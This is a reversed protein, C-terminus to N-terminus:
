EERNKERGAEGEQTHTHRKLPISILGYREALKSVGDNTEEMKCFFSYSVNEPTLNVVITPVGITQSCGWGSAILYYPNYGETEVYGVILDPDFGAVAKLLRRMKLEAGFLAGIKLGAFDFIVEDITVPVRWRRTAMDFGSDQFSISDKKLRLWKKKAFPTRDVTIGIEFDDFETSALVSGM